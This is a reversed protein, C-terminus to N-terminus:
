KNVLTTLSYPDSYSFESSIRNWEAFIDGALAQGAAKSGGYLRVEAPVSMVFTKQVCSAEEKREGCGAALLAAALACWIFKNM